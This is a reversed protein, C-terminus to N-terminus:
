QKVRRKKKSFGISNEIEREERAAKEEPTEAKKPPMGALVKLIVEQHHMDPIERRGERLVKLIEDRQYETDKGKGSVGVAQGVIDTAGPITTLLGDHVAKDVRDHLRDETEDSATRADLHLADRLAAKTKERERLPEYEAEYLYRLNDLFEDETYGNAIAAQKGLEIRDKPLLATAEINGEKIAEAREEKKRNAAEQANASRKKAMQEQAEASLKHPAAKPSV